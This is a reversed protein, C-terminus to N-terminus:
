RLITNALKNHQRGVCERRDAITYARAEFLQPRLPRNLHLTTYQSRHRKGLNYRLSAIADRLGSSMLARVLYSGFLLLDSAYRSDPTSHCFHRGAIHFHAFAAFYESRITNPRMIRLQPQNGFLAADM